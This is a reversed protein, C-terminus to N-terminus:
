FFLTSYLKEDFQSQSIRCELLLEGEKEMEDFLEHEEARYRAGISGISLGEVSALIKIQGEYKGKEEKSQSLLVWGTWDDGDVQSLLGKLAEQVPGQGKIRISRTETARFSMGSRIAPSAEIWRILPLPYPVLLMAQLDDSVSASASLKIKNSRLGELVPKMKNHYSDPLQAIKQGDHVINTEDWESDESLVLVVRITKGALPRLEKEFYAEANLQWGTETEPCELETFESKLNGRESQQREVIEQNVAKAAFHKKLFGL